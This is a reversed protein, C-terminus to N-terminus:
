TKSESNVFIDDTYVLTVCFHIEKSTEKDAFLSFARIFYINCSFVNQRTCPFIM